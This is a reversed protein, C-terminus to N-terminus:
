IQVITKPWLRVTSCMAVITQECLDYACHYKFYSCLTRIHMAVSYFFLIRFSSFSCFFEFFFFFVRFFFFFISFLFFFRVSVSRQKKSHCLFTRRLHFSAIVKPCILALCWPQCNVRSLHAYTFCQCAILSVTDTFWVNFETANTFIHPINSTLKHLAHFYRCELRRRWRPQQKTKDNCHIRISCIIVDHTYINGHENASPGIKLFFRMFNPM